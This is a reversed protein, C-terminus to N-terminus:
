TARASSASRSCSRATRRAYTSSRARTQARHAGRQAGRRHAPRRLPCPTVAGAPPRRAGSWTACLLASMRETTSPDRYLEADLSAVWDCLLLWEEKTKTKEMTAHAAFIKQLEAHPELADNVQDAREPLRLSFRHVLSPAAEHRKSLEIAKTIGDDAAFRRPWLRCRM